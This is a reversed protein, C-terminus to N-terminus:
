SSANGPVACGHSIVNRDMNLFKLKRSIHDDHSPNAWFSIEEKWM